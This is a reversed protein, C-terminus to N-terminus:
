ARAPSNSTTQFYVGAPILAGPQIPVITPNMSGSAKRRIAAILPPESISEATNVPMIPLINRTTRYMEIVPM